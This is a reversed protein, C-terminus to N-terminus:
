RRRRQFHRRKSRDGIVLQSYICFAVLVFLLFLLLLNDAWWENLM